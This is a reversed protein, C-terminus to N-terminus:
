VEGQGARSSWEIATAKADLEAEYAAIAETRLQDRDAGNTICAALFLDRKATTRMQAAQINSSLKNQDSFLQQLKKLPDDHM